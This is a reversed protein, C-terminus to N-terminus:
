SNLKSIVRLIGDINKGNLPFKQSECSNQEGCDKGILMASM